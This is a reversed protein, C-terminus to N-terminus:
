GTKGDMCNKFLIGGVFLVWPHQDLFMIEDTMNEFGYFTSVAGLATLLTFVFPYRRFIGKNVRAIDDHLIKTQEELHAFIDDNTKM